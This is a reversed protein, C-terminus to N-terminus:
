GVRFNPWVPRERWYEHRTVHSLEGLRAVIGYENM